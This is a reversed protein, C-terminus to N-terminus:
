CSRSEVISKALAAIGPSIFETVGETEPPDKVSRALGIAGQDLPVMIDVFARDFPEATELPTAVLSSGGPPLRLEEPTLGLQELVEPDITAPRERTSKLDKKFLRRHLEQLERIEGIRAAQMGSALRELEPQEARKGAEATVQLV